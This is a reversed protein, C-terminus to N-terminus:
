FFNEVVSFHKRFGKRRGLTMPEDNNNWRPRPDKWEDGDEDYETAAERKGRWVNANQSISDM